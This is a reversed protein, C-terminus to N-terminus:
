RIKFLALQLNKTFAFDQFTLNDFEEPSLNLFIRKTHRSKHVQCADQGGRGNMLCFQRSQVSYRFRRKVLKNCKANSMVQLNVCRLTIDIYYESRGRVVAFLIVLKVQFLFLILVSEGVPLKMHQDGWGSVLM